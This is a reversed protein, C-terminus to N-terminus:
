RPRRPGQKSKAATSQNTIWDYLTAKAWRTSGTMKIPPPLRGDQAKRWVSRVGIALIEAVDEATLMESEIASRAEKERNDPRRPEGTLGTRNKNEMLTDDAMANISVQDTPPADAKPASRKRPTVPM